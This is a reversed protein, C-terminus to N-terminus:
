VTDGRGSAWWTEISQQKGKRTEERLIPETGLPLGYANARWVGATLLTQSEMVDLLMGRGDAGALGRGQGTLAWDQGGCELGM